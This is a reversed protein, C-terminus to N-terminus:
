QYYKNNEIYDLVDYFTTNDNIEFLDLRLQSDDEEGKVLFTKRCFLSVFHVFMDNEIYWKSYFGYKDCLNLLEKKNYTIIYCLFAVKSELSMIIEIEMAYNEKYDIIMDNEIHILSYEIYHFFEEIKKNKLEVNIISSYMYGIVKEAKAKSIDKHNQNDDFPFLGIIKDYLFQISNQHDKQLKTINDIHYLLMKEFHDRHNTKRQERYTIYLLFISCIFLTGGIYGGFFAWDEIKDSIGNKAFVFVYPIISVLVMIIVCSFIHDDFWKLTKNTNM